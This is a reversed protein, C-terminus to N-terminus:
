GNASSAFGANVCKLLKGSHYLEDVVKVVEVPMVFADPDYTAEEWPRFQLERLYKRDKLLTVHDPYGFVLPDSQGFITIVPTKIKEAHCLHPLFSDVSIVLEANSAMRAIEALPKDVVFYDVGTIREEGSVGIQTTQYRRHKLLAVLQLWHPYNKPNIGERDRLKAAYPSILIM